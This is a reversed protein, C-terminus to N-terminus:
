DKESGSRRSVTWRKLQVGKAKLRAVWVRPREFELSLIALGLLIVLLGPGPVLPVSLVIGALIVVGGVIAIGIRRGMRLVQQQM